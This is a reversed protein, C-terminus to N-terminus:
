AMATGTEPFGPSMVISNRSVFHNQTVPKRIDYNIICDLEEDTLGYHRALIRDIEDVIAKSGIARAASM